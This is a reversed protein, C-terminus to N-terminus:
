EYTLAVLPDVRTARRAPLCCACLAVLGLVGTILVYTSPDTTSVGFLLSTMLRTLAFSAFLGIAVGILTLTMGKKLILAFIDRRQAGLALRVGIEQTHQVVFYALVGYIGLSSLLLALGAFITLLTMGLRRSSTQEGLVQDMTRVNAIPQDPDVQHVQERVSAVLTLPDGKTRIVLDRPAFWPQEKFQRYPLYLEAKVPEDVGMQRVDGAIGVVTLWPAPDDPDGIKLRKGLASEGPWYQRALTENIMVVPLSKQTDGDTFHRGAQLPIGMTVLYDASVQRHNADFSLGSAKAEELTRGEPYFGSTGGKWELPVTTSYGASTVGPLSKVRELVQDYFATRQAHQQYKSRPLVTRMTLVNEARLGSYQERLKVFTQILLAAGVLLVLALALESVVMVSRLRNGGGQLGSRGGGQKLAENLDIRSAQFAPALGFIVSTLLAMLLTFGLVKLDLSLRASFALSDPVLRELFGFSLSALLLGCVGGATALLVSEILLQRVIRSRSAGLATRVAIERRRGAARSLLLNAINGCAILLVFAVAVLLVLLPRRVDGAFQDRLPMVYASIPGAEAQHDQSIRKQVTHIDADAQAITVGPKMRAVVTLYHSNRQALEESSLALPV